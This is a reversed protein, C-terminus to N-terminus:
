DGVAQQSIVLPPKWEKRVKQWGLEGLAEEFTDKRALEDFFLEAAEGFRRKAEELTKGSTALDLAPAYAVFRKGEKLITIQLQIQLSTRSM